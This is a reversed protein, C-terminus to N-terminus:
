PFAYCTRHHQKTTRRLRLVVSSKREFLLTVDNYHKLGTHEVGYNMSKKQNNLGVSFLVRTCLGVVFRPTWIFTLLQVGIIMDVVCANSHLYWEICDTLCLSVFAHCESM